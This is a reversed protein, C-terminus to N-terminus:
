CIKAARLQSGVEVPVGQGGGHTPRLRQLNQKEAEGAGSRHVAGSAWKGEPQGATGGRRHSSNDKKRSGLERPTQIKLVVEKPLKLLTKLPLM